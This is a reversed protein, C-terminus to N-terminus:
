LTLIHEYTMEVNIMLKDHLIEGYTNSIYNCILHACMQLRWYAFIPESM